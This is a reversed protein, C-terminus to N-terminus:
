ERLRAVPPPRPVTLIEAKERRHKPEHLIYKKGTRMAEKKRKQEELIKEWNEPQLVKVKKFKQNVFSGNFM